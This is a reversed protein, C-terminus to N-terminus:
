FDPMFILLSDCHVSFSFSKQELIQLQRSVELDPLCKVSCVIFKYDRDAAEAASKVLRYPKWAKTHGYKISNITLGHTHISDYLSRTIATVRCRQSKELVYAYIGGANPYAFLVM